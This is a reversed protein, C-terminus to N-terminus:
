NNMLKSSMAIKAMLEQKIQEGRLRALEKRGFYKLAAEHPTLSEYAGSALKKLFYVSADIREEVKEMYEKKLQKERAKTKKITDEIVKHNRDASFGIDGDPKQYMYKFDVDSIEGSHKLNKYLKPGRVKM